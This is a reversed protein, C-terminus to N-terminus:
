PYINFNRVMKVINEFLIIARYFYALIQFKEYTM